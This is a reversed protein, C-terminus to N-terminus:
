GRGRDILSLRFGNRVRQAVKVIPAVHMSRVLHLFNGAGSNPNGTRLMKRTTAGSGRQPWPRCKVQPLVTRPWRRDEFM